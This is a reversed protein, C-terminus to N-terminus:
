LISRFYQDAPQRLNFVEFVLYTLNPLQVNQVLVLAYFFEWWYSFKSRCNKCLARFLLKVKCLYFNSADIKSIILDDQRIVMALTNDDNVFDAAAMEEKAFSRFM